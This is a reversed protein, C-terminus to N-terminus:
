GMGVQVPCVYKGCILEGGLRVQLIIRMAYRVTDALEFKVGGGRREQKDGRGGGEVEV